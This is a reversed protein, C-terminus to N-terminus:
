KSYHMLTLWPHRYLMRPGSYKMVEKMRARMDKRYCHIKCKACRPKAMGHPCKKIREISYNFLESCSPCLQGQGDPLRAYSSHRGHCFIASMKEITAKERNFKKSSIWLESNKM